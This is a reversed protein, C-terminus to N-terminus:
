NSDQKGFQSSLARKDIGWTEKVVRHISTYDMGERILMERGLGYDTEEQLAKM